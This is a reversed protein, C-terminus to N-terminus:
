LYDKIFKQIVKIEEQIQQTRRSSSLVNRCDEELQIVLWELINKAYIKPMWRRRNFMPLTRYELVRHIEPYEKFDILDIGMDKICQEIQAEENSDGQTIWEKIEVKGKFANKIIISAEEGSEWLSMFTSESIEHKFFSYGSTLNYVASYENQGTIQRTYVNRSYDIQKMSKKYYSDLHSLKISLETVFIEDNEIFFKEYKTAAMHAAAHYRDFTHTGFCKGQYQEILQNLEKTRNDLHEQKRAIELQKELEQVTM